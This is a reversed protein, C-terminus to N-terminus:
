HIMTRRVAATTSGWRGPAVLARVRTRGRSGVAEGSCAGQWHGQLSADVYCVQQKAFELLPALTAAGQEPRGAYESLGPRVSLVAGPLEVEPAVGRGDDRYMYVHIRTGTSGADIVVGFRTPLTESPAAVSLLAQVVVLLCLPLANVAAEVISLRLRM